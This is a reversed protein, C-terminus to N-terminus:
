TQFLRSSPTAILLFRCISYIKSNSRDVSLSLPNRFTFSASAFSCCLLVMLASLAAAGFHSNSFFIKQYTVVSRNNSAVEVGLDFLKIYLFAFFVLRLEESIMHCLYAFRVLKIYLFPFFVLEKSIMHCLYAFRVLTLLYLFSCVSM